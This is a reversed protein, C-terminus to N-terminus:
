ARLTAIQKKFCYIIADKLAYIKYLYDKGNQIDVDIDQFTVDNLSIWCRHETYNNQGCDQNVQNSLKNGCSPILSKVVDFEADSSINFAIAGNSSDVEAYDSNQLGVYSNGYRVAWTKIQTGYMIEKQEIPTAIYSIFKGWPANCHKAMNNNYCLNLENESLDSTKLIQFILYAIEQEIISYKLAKGKIEEIIDEFKPVCIVLNQLEPIVDLVETNEPKRVEEVSQPVINTAPAIRPTTKQIAAKLAKYVIPKYQKRMSPSFIMFGTGSNEIVYKLFTDDIVEEYNDDNATLLRTLFKSINDQEKKAKVLSTIDENIHAKGVGHIFMQLLEMDDVLDDINVRFLEDINHYAVTYVRWEYGNTLVAKTLTSEGNRVLARLQDVPEDDLAISLAVAEIYMMYSNDILIAYDVANVGINRNQVDVPHEMEVEYPSFLNYGLNFLVPTILTSKTQEENYPDSIILRESCITKLADLIDSIDKEM